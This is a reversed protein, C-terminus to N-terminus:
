YFATHLEHNGSSVKAGSKVLEEANRYGISHISPGKFLERGPLDPLPNIGSFGAGTSLVICKCSIERERRGDHIRATWSRNKQDYATATVRAGHIVRRDIDFEEAFARIQAALEDRTLGDNSARPYGVNSRVKLKLNKQRQSTLFHKPRIKRIYPLECFSKYVHFRMCDYRLAWNDGTRQNRDVVVYDVDM